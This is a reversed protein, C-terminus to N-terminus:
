YEFLIDVDGRLLMTYCRSAFLVLVDLKAAGRPLYVLVTVTLMVLGLGSLMVAVTYMHIAVSQQLPVFGSCDVSNGLDTDTLVAFAVPVAFGRFM